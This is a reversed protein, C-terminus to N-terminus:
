DGNTDLRQTYRDIVKRLALDSIEQPSLAANLRVFRENHKALIEYERLQRTIEELTLEQKRKYIIKPETILMFVIHPEPAIKVFFKRIWKPLDIRSRLPDVIFDYIYRDFITFRDFQVDKRIIKQLGILYDLWYYTLRIFSSLKSAPKNRHPNTFDKDQQMIRAKEGIAGLNPLLTPRFHYIRIKDLDTNFYYALGKSMESLFTTKGGGDPAIVSIFKKYKKPCIIIRYFKEIFFKIILYITKFPRRFITRRKSYRSISGSILEMESYNGKNLLNILEKAKSSGLTQVLLKDIEIKNVIYTDSIKNRYRANLKKTSILKYLLLLTVDYSKSLVRFDKFVVTNSYLQDFTFIEFGKNVYGEILDIHISFKKECDIGFCCRVQEFKVVYFNSIKNQRLVKKFLEIALKYSGPEIIIDVDKSENVNPLKEYNRLIFYRIGRNNYDSILSTFIDAHLETWTINNYIEELMKM